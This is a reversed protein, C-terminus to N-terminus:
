LHFGNEELGGKGGTQKAAVILFGDNQKNNALKLAQNQTSDVSDYYYVQKGLRRTQTRSHDGMTITFRIRSNIQIRKEEKVRGYIRVRSNEQHTEM